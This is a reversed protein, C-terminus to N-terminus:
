DIKFFSIAQALGDSQTKMEESSTALEESAAANHQVIRNLEQIASNVQDAGSSQEISAAAIEQILKVSKQVKPIVNHLKVNAQDSENKLTAALAEIEQAAIASKEALKRVEAAVVAFGRGHEGARAAEVAANLALINTQFSIDRIITIKESIQNTFGMAKTAAEVGDSVGKQADISVKEAEASNATTQQINSAIEEMSSSIEQTSSAQQNAGQSMEQSTSSLQLSVSAISEAGIIISSTIEKLKEGMKNLDRALDGIEDKQNLLVEDFKVRLDGSAIIKAFDRGKGLGILVSRRITITIIIGLITAILLVSIIRTISSKVQNILATESNSYLNKFENKINNEISNLQALTTSLQNNLGLSNTNNKHNYAFDGYQKLLKSIQNISSLELSSPESLTLNAISNEVNRQSNSYTTFAQQTPDLLFSRFLEKAEIHLKEAINQELIRERVNSIKQFNTFTFGGVIVMMAILSGFGLALKTRIKIDYWKM